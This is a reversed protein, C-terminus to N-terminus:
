WSGDTPSFTWQLRDALSAQKGCLWVSTLLASSATAALLLEYAHSTSCQRALGSDSLQDLDSPRRLNRAHSVLIRDTTRGM